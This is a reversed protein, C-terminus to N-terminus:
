PVVQEKLGGQPISARPLSVFQPVTAVSFPPGQSTVSKGFKLSARLREVKEMGM